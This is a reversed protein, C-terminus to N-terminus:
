IQPRQENRPSSGSRLRRVMAEAALSEREDNMEREYARHENAIRENRALMVFVGIGGGGLVCAAAGAIDAIGM